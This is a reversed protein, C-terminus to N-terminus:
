PVAELPRPFCSCNFSVLVNQTLQEIMKYYEEPVSLSAILNMNIQVFSHIETDYQPQIFALFEFYSYFLKCNNKSLGLTKGAEIFISKSYNGDHNVHLLDSILVIM